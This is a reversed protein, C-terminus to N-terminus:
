ISANTMISVKCTKAHTFELLKRDIKFQDIIDSPNPHGSNEELCKDEALKQKLRGNSIIIVVEQRAM